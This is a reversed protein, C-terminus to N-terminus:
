CRKQNRRLKLNWIDKAHVQLDHVVVVKGPSLNYILPFRRYIPGNGLWFETWLDVKLGDGLKYNM